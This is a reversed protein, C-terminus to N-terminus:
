GRALPRQLSWALRRPDLASAATRLTSAVDVRLAVDPWRGALTFPLAIQEAAAGRRELAARLAPAAALVAQTLEPGLTIHGNVDIVGDRTLGGDTAATFLRTQVGLQSFALRSPDVDVRGGLREYETGSAALLAATAPDSGLV